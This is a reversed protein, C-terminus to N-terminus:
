RSTLGTAEATTTPDDAPSGYEPRNAGIENSQRRLAVLRADEATQTAQRALAVVAKFDGGGSYRSEAISLQQEAKRQIEPAFEEARSARALQVANKAQYLELIAEYEDLSVKRDDRSAAAQARDVDFEYSGRRLLEFKADVTETSGITDPRVQNEMVVVDSPQTVAFYPEATVLLAFTQLETTVELKAKNKGNAVIQGLNSARGDPTVAWLVYTLYQRGFKDPPEMGEFEAEIQTAGRKSQVRAEGESEPLLVTGAFDIKTPRQRDRYNVAKTTRAIVNVRYIPSRSTPTQEASEPEQVPNPEQGLLSSALTLILIAQFRM